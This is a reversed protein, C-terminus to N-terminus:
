KKIGCQLRILEKEAEWQERGLRSLENIQKINARLSWCMFLTFAIWIVFLVATTVTATIAVCM